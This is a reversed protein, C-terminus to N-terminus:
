KAGPPNFAGSRFIDDAKSYHEADLQRFLNTATFREDGATCSDYIRLATRSLEAMQEATLQAFAARDINTWFEKYDKACDAALAPASLAGAGLITLVFRKM